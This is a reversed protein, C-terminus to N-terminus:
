GMTKQGDLTERIIDAHGAHHATETSIHLATRRVTWRAGPEFWPAKPLPQSADLDPLTAVLEDTRAAVRDYEALLGALTEGAEVRFTAAHDAIREELPVEQAPGDVMFNSWGREVAAVHKIIGALCLESATTRQRAQEDTLGQVTHRLFQRRAALTALIDAREATAVHTTDAAAAATTTTM